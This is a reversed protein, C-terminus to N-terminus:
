SNYLFPSFGSRIKAELMTLRGANKARVDSTRSATLDSQRQADDGPQYRAAWFGLNWKGLMHTAYGADSLTRPLFTWDQSLALYQEPAAYAGLSGHEVGTKYPLRGTMLSARTPACWKHVYSQNLTLGRTFLADIHPSLTVGDNHVGINGWGLDDALVFIINPRLPASAVSALLLAVVAAARLVM